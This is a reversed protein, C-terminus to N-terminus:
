NLVMGTIGSQVRDSIGLNGYWTQTNAGAGFQLFSFTHYGVGPSGLYEAICTSTIGSANSGNCNTLTSSPSSTSDVGVGVWANAGTAASNSWMANINVDIFDAMSFLVGITDPGSNNVLAWAAASYNWTSSAEKLVLTRPVKNYINSLCRCIATSDVLVGATSSVRVSGLLRNTTVGSQVLIGNQLVRTPPLIDNSWAASWIMRPVGSNNQVYVDYNTSPPLKFTLSTAGSGTAAASLTLTTSTPIAAITTSGPINTGTVQEGVTMQSTDTCATVNVSSALTCTQTQTAPLSYTSAAVPITSWASVGDYIQIQYGGGYPELFLSPAGTVDSTTVSTGQTLTLRVAPTINVTTGAGAISNCGFGTSTTWTLANSATSCSPV